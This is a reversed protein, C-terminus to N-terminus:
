PANPDDSTLSTGDPLCYCGKALHTVKEATGQVQIGESLRWDPNPANHWGAKMGSYGLHYEKGSGNVATFVQTSPIDTM